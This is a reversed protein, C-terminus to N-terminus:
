AGKRIIRQMRPTPPAKLELTMAAYVRAHTSSPNAAYKTIVFRDDPGPKKSRYFEVSREDVNESLNGLSKARRNLSLSKTIESVSLDRIGAQQGTSATQPKQTTGTPYPGLGNVDGSLGTLHSEARPKKSSSSPQTLAGALKSANSNSSAVKGPAAKPPKAAGVRINERFFSRVNKFM